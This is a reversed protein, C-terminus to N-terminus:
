ATTTIITTIITTTAIAATTITTTTTTSTTSTSTTTVASIADDAATLIHIIGLHFYLVLVLTVLSRQQVTHRPVAHVTQCGAVDEEANVGM